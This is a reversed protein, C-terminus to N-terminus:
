LGQFLKHSWGPTSVACQEPPTARSFFHSSSVLYPITQASKILKLLASRGAASKYVCQVCKFTNSSTLCPRASKLLKLLASRGAASKNFVSCAKLCPQVIEVLWVHKYIGTICSAVKLVEVCYDPRHSLSGGATETHQSLFLDNVSNRWGSPSWVMWARGLFLDSLALQAKRCSVTQLDQSPSSFVSTRFLPSSKM